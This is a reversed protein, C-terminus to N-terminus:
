EARVHRAPVFGLQGGFTRVRVWPVGDPDEVPELLQALRGTGDDDLRAAENGGPADYLPITMHTPDSPETCGSGGLMEVNDCSYLRLATPECALLLSALV